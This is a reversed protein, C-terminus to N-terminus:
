SALAQAGAVIEIAGEYFPQDTKPDKGFAGGTDDLTQYLAVGSAGYRPGANDLLDSCEGYLDRADQPTVGYARLLYRLTQVPARHLRPGGLDVLVVFRQYQGPGRADGPVVAGSVIREPAPENGRIRQGAINAGRLEAILSGMPDTLEWDAM